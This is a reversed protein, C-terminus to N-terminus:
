AEQAPIAHSYRIQDLSLQMDERLGPISEADIARELAGVSRPDNLDGLAVAAADRALPLESYLLCEAIYARDDLSPGHEIQGLVRVVDAAVGQNMHKSQLRGALVQLGAVSHESVFLSLSQSTRNEM